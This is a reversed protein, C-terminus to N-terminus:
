ANFNIPAIGEVARLANLTGAIGESGIGDLTSQVRTIVDHAALVQGNTMALIHPSKDSNFDTGDIIYDLGDENLTVITDAATKDSASTKGLGVTYVQSGDKLLSLKISSWSTGEPGAIDWEMPKGNTERYDSFNKLKAFVAKFLEPSAQAKLDVVDINPDPIIGRERPVPGTTSVSVPKGITLPESCAGVALSAAGLVAARLFNRRTLANHNM